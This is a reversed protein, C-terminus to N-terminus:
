RKLSSSTESAHLIPSNQISSDLVVSYSNKEAYNELLGILKRGIRNDVEAQTSQMDEKMEKSKRDLQVALRRGQQMVVPKDGGLTRGTQLRQRLEEVRRSNRSYTQTRMKGEITSAIARQLDIVGVKGTNSTTGRVQAEVHVIFTGAVCVLWLAAFSCPERIACNGGQPVSSNLM